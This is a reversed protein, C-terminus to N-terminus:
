NVFGWFIGLRLVFSSQPYQPAYFNNNTWGWTGTGRGFTNLNEARLFARFSNIRFHLYAALEPLKFNVTEADQYFFQGLVPSYNDAKYDTRYKAELGLALLLRRYGLSGEYGFRSRAFVLPLQVPANGIAQQFYVDAYWKWQDKKGFEFLKNASIQLVNFLSSAQNIKYFDTYYIYNNVLYYHGSLGLKLLPQYINAYLHSTNEKKLDVASNMLYFASQSNTIFAPARNVNEFGLQLSGIKKGLLSQISARAEYDGANYGAFYFKGFAMLDWKLNKTRNRYEGHAFINYFSKAASDKVIGSINQVAAGAKIFQQTNKADPFTYFSFDNFLQKWSEVIQFTTDGTGTFPFLYRATYYEKHANKDIFSYKNTTYQITHEFRVRPFFLPIVTSDSVLSDKKGFDYQQRMLATFDSYINGTTINTNFFNRNYNPEGIKSPIRSRDNYQPDAMFNQSTDIGGSETNKLKNAVIMFYNNYRKNKTQYWSTVLYNNHSTKQNQMMGPSSILRYQLNFNWNPRVNQTHMLEILQESKSGLLYNIRSFPRTTTYFRANETTYRYIDLAHFGADWGSKMIPNFLYSKAANGTNGLNYYTAPLPYLKYFDNISSDIKNARTTDLYRFSITISDELKNRRGLSDSGGGSAAGRLGKIRNMAGGIPNQAVASVSIFSLIIIWIYKM